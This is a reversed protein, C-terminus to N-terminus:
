IFFTKCNGPGPTNDPHEENRKGRLSYHCRNKTSPIEYSGPGPNKNNVLEALPGTVIM